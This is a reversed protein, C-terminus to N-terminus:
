WALDDNDESSPTDNWSDRADNKEEAWTNSTAPAPSAIPPPAVYSATESGDLKIGTLQTLIARANDDPVLEMMLEAASMRGWGVIREIAPSLPTHPEHLRFYNAVDQLRNLADERHQIAGSSANAMQAAPAGANSPPASNATDHTASAETAASAEVQAAAESAQLQALKDKSLFRVTRLLEELLERISTSPPAEHACYNAMLENLGQFAECCSELDGILAIYFASDGSAVTKEISDLNFGMSQLRSQREDDDAIKRADRAQQYQWYSFTGDSGLTTIACNRIPALLTGEGGDGNLATLPAIKTELGDEDPEPYLNDWYKEVIERTLTLGDRLGALGYFRILAEIYWSLVELDKSTESLIQPATDLVPQWLALTDVSADDDFLNAREAARAGNRADKIRYYASNPSRDLRIDSGQPCDDSIPQSLAEIDIVAPSTM